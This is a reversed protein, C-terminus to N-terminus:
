SIRMGIIKYKPVDGSIKATDNFCEFRNKKAPMKEANYLALETLFSKSFHVIAEQSIM